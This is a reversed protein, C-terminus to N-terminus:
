RFDYLSFSLLSLATIGSCSDMCKAPHRPEKYSVTCISEHVARAPYRVEAAYSRKVTVAEHLFKVGM